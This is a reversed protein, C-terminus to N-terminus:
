INPGGGKGGRWNESNERENRFKIEVIWGCGNQGLRCVGHHFLFGV